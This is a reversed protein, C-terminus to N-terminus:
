VLSRFGDPTLVNFIMKNSIVEKVETVMKMGKANHQEHEDVQKVKVIRGKIIHPTDCSVLGNIMGSGGILGVQGISLPLLPHKQASDLENKSMLKQFSNSQRLQRELEKENFREGKFVSVTKAEAPVAYQGEALETLVSIATPTYGYHELTNATDPDDSRKKRLGLIAVQKFKKFESDTFRWVTLDTFNDSLIRCIDSTLRYYPIIYILLGGMTLARLSEVLFRKEHRARGGGETLVSLYPPNLFLGHFAENSIRSHFFSGVGVRHLITQAEEARSEDLEVGYTFCNNGQAVQRLAKGCGCCPDLLNTTVGSPFTIGKLILDINVPDTPYYGMKVNNMLRGIIAANTTQTADPLKGAFAMVAEYVPKYATAMLNFGQMGQQLKAGMASLQYEETEQLFLQAEGLASVLHNREKQLELYLRQARPLDSEKYKEVKGRLSLMEAMGKSIQGKLDQLRELAYFREHQQSM